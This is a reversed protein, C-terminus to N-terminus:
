AHVGEASIIMQEQIVNGLYDAVGDLDAMNNVTNNVGGLNVSIDKFVTRDIVEREAIDKMWAINEETIELAKGTNDATAAAYDSIDGISDLYDQQTGFTSSEPSVFFDTVKDEVSEGFAYGARAASEYDVFDMKGVIEQWGSEDKVSQQAAELGAYFNDLGSTIDVTVGPIKNIVTEIASAMNTIYGIVTLAMDYFLVEIAAVPNNFVNGMFNSIAAFANWTPVIFTNIVHAGLTAVTAGILGTASVSAGSFKNFAATGAYLAVVLAGIGLVIWTIPCAFLAANFGYQAATASFTAGTSFMMSAGRVSEAIAGATQVTKGIALAATYSVVAATAGILIPEIIGWNESIANGIDQAGTIMENMNQVIVTLTPIAMASLNGTFAQWNEQLLKTQNAYSSSTRAFDGQADATVSILYNYRLLTQSAQDMDSYAVKIGQAMRYAELNAVSMNIGLQKLPETEGSLGSRIKEFSVESNLNYFSAMDGALATINTSMQQAMDDALQSSKLMAGMTGAYKKANLENIGYANLTTQAWQNIEDESEGFTVSVVNQVEALDSAYDIASSIQGIIANFGLYAAAIQTVKGLLGGAEVTGRAMSNNLKKQNDDADDINSAFEQIDLTMNAISERVEIFRAPDMGDNSAEQLSVMAGLCANISTAINMFAASMNDKVGVTTQIAM